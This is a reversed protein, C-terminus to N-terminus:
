VKCCLLTKLDPDSYMLDDSVVLKCAKNENLLAPPPVGQVLLKMKDVFKRFIDQWQEYFCIETVKPEIIKNVNDM